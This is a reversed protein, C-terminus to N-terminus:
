GQDFSTGAEERPSGAGTKTTTISLANELSTSEPERSSFAGVVFGGREFFSAATVPTV